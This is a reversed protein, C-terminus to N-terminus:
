DTAFYRHCDLFRNRQRSGSTTDLQARDLALANSEGCIGSSQLAGMGCLRPRTHSVM